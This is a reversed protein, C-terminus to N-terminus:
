SITTTLAHAHAQRGVPPQQLPPPPPQPLPPADGPPIDPGGPHRTSSSTIIIYPVAEYPLQAHAATPPMLCQVVRGAQDSLRCVACQARHQM